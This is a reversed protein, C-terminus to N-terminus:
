TMSAKVLWNLLAPVGEDTLKFSLQSNSEGGNHLLNVHIGPVLKPEGKESDWGANVKSVDIDTVHALNLYYISPDDEAGYITSVLKIWMM